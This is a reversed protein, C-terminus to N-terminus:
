IQGPEQRPVYSHGGADVEGKILVKIPGKIPGKILGQDSRKDFM